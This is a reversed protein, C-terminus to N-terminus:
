SSTQKSSTATQVVEFGSTVKTSQSFSTLTETAAPCTNFINKYNLALWHVLFKTCFHKNETTVKDPQRYAVNKKAAFSFIEINGKDRCTAVFILFVRSTKGDADVVKNIERGRFRKLVFGRFCKKVHRVTRLIAINTLPDNIPLGISTNYITNKIIQPIANDVQAQNISVWDYTLSFRNALSQEDEDAVVATPDKSSFLENFRLYETDELSFLTTDKLKSYETIIDNITIAGTKACLSVRLDKPTWFLISRLDTMKIKKTITEAVTTKKENVKNGNTGTSDKTEVETTVQGMHANNSGSESKKQSAKLKSLTLGLILALFVLRALKM